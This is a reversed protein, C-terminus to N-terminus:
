LERYRGQTGGSSTPQTASVQRGGDLSVVREGHVECLQRLLM